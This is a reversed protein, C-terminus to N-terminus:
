RIIPLIRRFPATNARCAWQFIVTEVSSVVAGAQRLLDLAIVRNANLRSSVADAAIHVRFGAHILDLCTQLVCVHTELGAV